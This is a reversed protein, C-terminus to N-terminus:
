SMWFKAHTSNFVDIHLTAGSGSITMNHSTEITVDYVADSQNITTQMEVSTNYGQNSTIWTTNATRIITSNDMVIEIDSDTRNTHPASTYIWSTNWNRIVTDNDLKATDL